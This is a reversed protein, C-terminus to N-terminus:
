NGIPVKQATTVGASNTVQVDVSIIQSTDGTVPFKALLGFIGGTQTAAFYQEFESTEDVRIAGPSLANGNVDYFTFALQSASYTNDFGSVSVDIEGFKRISAATDLMVPSPAIVLTAQQQAGNSLALTFVLTGATTGTQFAISPQANFKAVTDGASITVSAARRPGSLFEVAPDDAVGTVAPQFALTLTGTGSVPSASALAISVINQQASAGLTSAFEIAAGPLPPDLGLGKLNFVRQDVTLTGQSATGSQPQFAVQFAASQGPGLQVPAALGIPGSFGAGSVAVTNVTINATGTNLLVFGQTQSVGRVVSGFDIVTGSVLPAASGALTLSAGQAATGRLTVNISNNVSLFASYSGIVQPTFTVRFEAEADPALIYPFSPASSIQFGAGALSLADFTAPGSGTNRVRFRTAVTDGPAATGVDFTAGVPNEATGDFQLLQIQALAAVPLLGFFVLVRGTM